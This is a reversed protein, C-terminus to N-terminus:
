QREGKELRELVREVIAEANPEDKIASLMWAKAEDRTYFVTSEGLTKKVAMVLKDELEM